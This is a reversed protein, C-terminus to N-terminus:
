TQLDSLLGQDLWPTTDELWISVDDIFFSNRALKHAVSNDCRPVFSFFVMVSNCIALIDVIVLGVEYNPPKKEILFNIVNLADSEVLLHTFGSDIALHLGNLIASAEAVEISVSRFRKRSLGAMFLGNSDRIVAGLGVLSESCKLSADVNLKFLGVVPPQWRRLPLAATSKVLVPLATDIDALFWVAWSVVNM